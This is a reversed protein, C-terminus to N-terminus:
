GLLTLLSQKSMKKKRTDIDAQELHIIIDDGEASTVPDPTTSSRKKIIHSVISSYSAINTKLYNVAILIKLSSSKIPSTWILRTMRIWFSLKNLNM